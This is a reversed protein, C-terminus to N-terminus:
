ERLVMEYKRRESEAGSRSVYKTLGNVAYRIQTDDGSGPAVLMNTLRFLDPTDASILRSFVWRSTDQNKAPLQGVLAPVTDDFSAATSRQEQIDLQGTSTCALGIFVLVTFKLYRLLPM